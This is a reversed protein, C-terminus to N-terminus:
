WHCLTRAPARDITPEDHRAPQAVSTLRTECETEPLDKRWEIRTSGPRAKFYCEPCYRLGSSRFGVECGWCRIPEDRQCYIPNGLVPQSAIAIYAVCRESCCNGHAPPIFGGSCARCISVREGSTRASGWYPTTM